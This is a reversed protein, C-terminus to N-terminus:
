YLGRAPGQSVRRRRADLAEYLPDDVIFEDVALQILTVQRELVQVPDRLGERPDEVRHEMCPYLIRIVFLLLSPAAGFTVTLFMVPLRIGLRRAM